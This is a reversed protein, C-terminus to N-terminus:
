SAPPPPQTGFQPLPMVQPAKVNFRAEGASEEVGALTARWVYAGPSLPLGPFLELM